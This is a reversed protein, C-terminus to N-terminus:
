SRLLDRVPRVLRLMQETRRFGTHTYSWGLVGREPPEFHPDLERVWSAVEAGGAPDTYAIGHALRWLPGAAARRRRETLEGRAALVGLCKKYITLRQYHSVTLKLGGLDQVRPQSHTRHALALRDYVCLAPSRMAVEIVFCRDDLVFFEPRHPITLVHSRRFLFSSYHSPDVEGLQRELFDGGSIWPIESLVDRQESCLAYGAVVVDAGSAKGLAVQADNAGPLVWDDSDLFRVFEGTAMSFARNVAWGKGWNDQCVSVVDPQQELWEWTGDTSGDDVVIIESACGTRRCSEVADRLFPLRNHTPILVSLDM